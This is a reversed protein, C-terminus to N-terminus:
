TVGVVLRVCCVLGWVMMEVRTLIVINAYIRVYGYLIM